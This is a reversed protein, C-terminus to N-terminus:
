LPPPSAFVSPTGGTHLFVIRDDVWKGQRALDILGAMAKATYVPDLLIGECQWLQKLAGIGEKSPVGYGEGVYDSNLHVEERQFERDLGINKSLANAVSCISEEFRPNDDNRIGLIEVKSDTIAKGVLNGAHTGGSSSCFVLVTPKPPLDRLQKELEAFGSVYGQSGVENSGGVPIVYPNRGEKRLQLAFAEM